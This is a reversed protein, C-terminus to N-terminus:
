RLVITKMFEGTVNFYKNFLEGMAKGRNQNDFCVDHWLTQVEKKYQNIKILAISDGNNCDKKDILNTMVADPNTIDIGADKMKGLIVNSDVKIRITLNDFFRQNPSYKYCGITSLEEFRNKNMKHTYM